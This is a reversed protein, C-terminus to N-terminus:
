KWFAQFDHHTIQQEKPPLKMYDGFLCTLYIDYDRIAMYVRDEFPLDIHNKHISAPVIEKEGYGWVLCCRRNTQSKSANNAVRNMLSIIMDDSLPLLVFQSLIIFLNKTFSREKRLRLRKIILLYYLARMKAFLTNCKGEPIFDIPFIDIFVGFDKCGKVNEFLLTSEDVVKAYPFKFDNFCEHSLIRYRQEGKNYKEQMVHILREYDERTLMIDIDDDWPIYGKHRVAGILTGGSMSYHIGHERCIKDVYSLINLQIERLESIDKIRKM